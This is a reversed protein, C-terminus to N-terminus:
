YFLFSRNKKYVKEPETAVTPKVTVAWIWRLCINDEKYKRKLFSPFSSKNEEGVLTSMVIWGGETGLTRASVQEKIWDIHCWGRQPGADKSACRRTDVGVPFPSFAPVDDPSQSHYWKCRSLDVEPLYQGRQNKGSKRLVKFCTQYPFTEVCITIQEGGWSIHSM